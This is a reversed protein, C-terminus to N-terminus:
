GVAHSGAARVTPLPLVEGGQAPCVPAFSCWRCAPGPRPQWDGSDAVAVISEWLRRVTGEFNRLDDAEPQFRLFDGSGLYNLQLMTPLAGTMRWVVLAYFRLQFMAKQEYRPGPARGSKYDVIRVGAGAAIDVRDVFGRLVPGDPLACEVHLERHAPELRSPDEMAFYTALLPEAERLWAALEAPGLAAEPGDQAGAVAQALEPERAVVADWSEGLLDIANDLVREPAPLDFLRELVTHVLTGRAMAPSAQEPLRDVTRYRYLLPCTTFDSARSPSLAGLLPHGPHREAQWADAPPVLLVPPADRVVRPRDDSPAPPAVAATRGAGLGAVDLTM